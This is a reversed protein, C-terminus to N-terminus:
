ICKYQYYFNHFDELSHSALNIFLVYIIKILQYNILLSNMLVNLIIFFLEIIVIFFTLLFHRNRDNIFFYIVKQNLFNIIIFCHDMFIMFEDYMVENLKIDYHLLIFHHIYNMKEQNILVQLNQLIYPNYM